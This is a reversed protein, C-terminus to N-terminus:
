ASVRSRYPICHSQVPVARLTRQKSRGGRKTGSESSNRPQVGPSYFRLEGGARACTNVARSDVSSGALATKPVARRGHEIGEWRGVARKQERPKPVRLSWATSSTASRGLLYHGNEQAKRSVQICLRTQRDYKPLDIYGSLPCVFRRSEEFYAAAIAFPRADRRSSQGSLNSNGSRITELKSQLLRGM